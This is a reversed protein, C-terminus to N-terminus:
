YINMNLLLKNYEFMRFFYKGCIQLHENSLITIINITKVTQRTEQLIIYTEHLKVM